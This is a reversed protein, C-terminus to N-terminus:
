QTYLLSGASFPIFDVLKSQCAIPASHDTVVLVKRNSNCGHIFTMPSEESIGTCLSAEVEYM